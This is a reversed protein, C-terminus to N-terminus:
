QRDPFGATVPAACLKTLLANSGSKEFARVPTNTLNVQRRNKTWPYHSKRRDKNAGYRLPSLPTLCPAPTQPGKGWNLLTSAQRGRLPLSWRPKTDWRRIRNCTTTRRRESPSRVGPTQW